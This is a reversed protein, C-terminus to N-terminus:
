RIRVVRPAPLAAVGPKGHGTAKPGSAPTMQIGGRPLPQRSCIANALDAAVVVVQQLLSVAQRAKRSALLLTPEVFAPIGWEGVMARGVTAPNDFDLERSTWDLLIPIRGAEHLLGALRADCSRLEPFRAAMTESLAATLRARAWLQRIAEYRQGPETSVVSSMAQRLGTRGLHIVCEDIRSARTGSSDHKTSSSRFLQLCAGVDRLILNVIAPLDLTAAGLLLDLQLRTEPQVPIAPHSSLIRRVGGTRRVLFPGHGITPTPTTDTDRTALM